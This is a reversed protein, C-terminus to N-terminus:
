ACFDNEKLFTLTPKLIEAYKSNPMDDIVKNIPLRMEYESGIRTMVAGLEKFRKILKTNDSMITGTFIEINLKAALFYLVSLLTTGVGLNQYEDIVTLALEAEGPNKDSRRFRGVGVGYVEDGNIDFAAWAVHDKQDTDLFDDLQEKSLEKMKGFFRHYVSIDSLKRFGEILKERDGKELVKYCIFTNAKTPYFFSNGGFLSLDPM